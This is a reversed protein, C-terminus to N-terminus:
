WDKPNNKKWDQMSSNLDYIFKYDSHLLFQPTVFNSRFLKNLRKYHYNSLPSLNKTIFSSLIIITKILIKPFTLFKNKNQFQNSIASVYNELNPCPYFSGNFLTINKFKKSTQNENIWSISNILENIYIGSKKLYKNGMFLFFRKKITKILRSVNGNEGPGFVVGPRCITLIKKNKNKNQWHIYNEEAKLKSKGYATNPITTTNENKEHNGPGYVSISSTFIINVCKVHDAFNCINKSGEVNTEFYEYDAHGPERHVAAFDCIIDVKSINIDTLDKRVDKKITKIANNLKLNQYINLCYKDKPEAIDILYIFKYKKKNLLYKAYHIGIFGMGGFIVATKM